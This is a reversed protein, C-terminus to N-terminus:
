IRRSLKWLSLISRKEGRQAKNQGHPHRWDGQKLEQAWRMAYETWQLTYLLFRKFCIDARTAKRGWVRWYCCAARGKDKETERM